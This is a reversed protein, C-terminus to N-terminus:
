TRGFCPDLYTMSCLLSPRLAPWAFRPHAYLGLSVSTDRGINLNSCNSVHSPVLITPLPGSRKVRHGMHQLGTCTLPRPGGAGAHRAAGHASPYYRFRHAPSNARAAKIVLGFPTYHGRRVRCACRVYANESKSTTPHSHHHAM